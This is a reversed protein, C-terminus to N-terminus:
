ELDENSLVGRKVVFIFVDCCLILMLPSRTDCSNMGPLFIPNPTPNVSVGM